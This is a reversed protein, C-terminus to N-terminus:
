TRARTHRMDAPARTHTDTSGSSLQKVHREPDLYTAGPLAVLPMFARYHVVILNSVASIVGIVSNHDRSRCHHRRAAAAPNYGAALLRVM